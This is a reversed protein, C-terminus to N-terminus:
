NPSLDKIRELIMEVSGGIEKQDHDTLNQKVHYGILLAEPATVIPLNYCCYHCGPKCDLPEPLSELSTFEQIAQDTWNLAEWALELAKNQFKEM